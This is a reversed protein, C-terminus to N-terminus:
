RLPENLLARRLLRVCFDNRSREQLAAEKKIALFLDEEMLLPLARNRKNM